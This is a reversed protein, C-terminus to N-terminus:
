DAIFKCFYNGNVKIITTFYNKYVTNYIKGVVMDKGFLTLLTNEMDETGKEEIWYTNENKGKIVSVEKNSDLQIKVPIGNEHIVTVNKTGKNDYFSFEEILPENNVLPKRLYIEDYRGDGNLDWMLEKGGNGLYKEQYDVITDRDNDIEVKQLYINDILQVQGFVKNIFTIEDKSNFNGTSDIDYTEATEYLDDGDYDVYRIFPFGGGLEAYAYKKDNVSFDISVPKGKYITYHLVANDREFSPIEISSAKKLLFRADLETFDQNILPVFFEVGTKKLARDQTMKFPSYVFDDDLYNFISNSKSFKVKEVKPYIDYVLDTKTNEFSITKPVGFDCDSNIEFIEDNNSDYLITKARGREYTVTLENLLDLNEDFIITGNFSNLTDYLNQKLASDQILNAFAELVSLNFINESSNFYLNYAKEESVLNNKLACYAFLPYKELKEGAGLILRDRTEGEVFLSACVELEMSHNKYDPFHAVYDKAILLVDTPINYKLGSRESNLLFTTEFMFFIRPFREDKSYIKRCQNLKARAQAVSEKSGIRYYDKIRIFEADASYIFPEQNLIELSKELNLTESLLDAYFIRASNKNYNVWNNYNFAKSISDLVEARKYGLQNQSSAKVYYLDSVTEDYALGMEAQNLAGKYENALICKEALKLCREATKRNVQRLQESQGFICLNCCFILGILVVIKKM